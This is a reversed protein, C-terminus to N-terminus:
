GVRRDIPERTALLVRQAVILLSTRQKEKAAGIAYSAVGDRSLRIFHKAVESLVHNPHGLNRRFGAVRRSSIHDEITGSLVFVEPQLLDGAVRIIAVHKAGRWEPVYSQLRREEMVAREGPEFVRDAKM